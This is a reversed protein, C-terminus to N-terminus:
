IEWERLQTLELAYPDSCLTVVLCPAYNEASHELFIRIYFAYFSQLRHIVNMKVIESKQRGGANDVDM